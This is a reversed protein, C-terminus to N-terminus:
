PFSYSIIKKGTLVEIGKYLEPDKMGAGLTLKEKAVHLVVIEMDRKVECSPIPLGRDLDMTTILDPFTGIRHGEQELTMYENCFCLTYKGKKDKITLEGVDFGEKTEMYVDLVTGRAVLKGELVREVTNLVDEVGYSKSNLMARGLLVAKEISGVAATKMVYSAKVPNRAVTVYGGAKVSLERITKTTELMNGKVVSEVYKSRDKSGGVAAQISVYNDLKHLSLSGMLGSPHARGNCPADVVPLGLVASQYFGNLTSFGGNESSIIGDVHIGNELLLEIARVYDEPEVKQERAGPAGVRSVTILIADKSLQDIDVIRPEGVSLALKGFDLGESISGGGGGGLVGGGHAAAEVFDKNIIM